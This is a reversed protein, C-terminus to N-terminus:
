PLKSKYYEIKLQTFDKFVSFKNYNDDNKWYNIVEKKENKFFVDDSLDIKNGGYKKVNDFFYGKPLGNPESIVLTTLFRRNNLFEYHFIDNLINSLNSTKSKGKTCDINCDDILKLYFVTNTIKNRAVEILYERVKILDRIDSKPFRYFSYDIWNEIM